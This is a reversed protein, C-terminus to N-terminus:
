KYQRNPITGLYQYLRALIEGAGTNGTVEIRHRRNPVTGLYQYLM